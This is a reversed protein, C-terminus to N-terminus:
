APRSQIVAFREKLKLFPKELLGYSVASIAVTIVFSLLLVMAPYAVLRDSDLHPKTMRNALFIGLKHYVYLGYSIKGLYALRRNQLLSSIIGVGGQTLSYIILSTGIGVLPYTIMLQWQIRTVNPLLTVQGLALIGILLWLINPVRKLPRDFIGLGIVIGGLVSDFHSYPLVCIDPHGIQRYIMWGRIFTGGLAMGLLVLRTITPRSRYFFLLVWPILLYVQEEYSITWLHPSHLLASNYGHRAAMFNDTFTLMGVARLTAEDSWGNRQVTLWAVLAFFFFYLPWIRFARRLYFNKINVSGTQKYEAQLLRTFLFASLCLFLDVGMWGYKALTIWAEILESYGAHHILVLLFAFFRLSDLEPLYFGNPKM